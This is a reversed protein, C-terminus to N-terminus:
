HSLRTIVEQFIARQLQHAEGTAPGHFGSYVEPLGNRPIFVVTPFSTIPPLFSLLQSASSKSADGGLAWIADPHIQGRYRDIRDWAGAPDKTANREFALNICRITEAKGETLEQLLRSADLCNPCWTATIDLITLAHTSAGLDLPVPEGDRGLTMLLAPPLQEGIIVPIHAGFLDEVPQATWQSQFHNGSYFTGSLAGEPTLRGDFHYLHAGDFTSLKLSQQAFSGSLYRYDGSATLISAQVPKALLPQPQTFILTGTHADPGMAFDWHQAPLVDNAPYTMGKRLISLPIRYATSRLLDIWHGKFLTDGSPTVWEGEIRGDFIPYVWAHDDAKLFSLTESGNIINLNGAETLLCPFSAEVGTDIQFVISGVEVLVPQASSIKVGVLLLFSLFCLRM